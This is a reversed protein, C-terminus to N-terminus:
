RPCYEGQGPPKLEPLDDSKLVGTEVLYEAVERDGVDILMKGNIEVCPASSQGTRERMENFANRDKAVNRREHALQHKELLELVGETWFCFPKYYVVIKPSKKVVGDM